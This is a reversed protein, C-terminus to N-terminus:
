AMECRRAPQPCRKSSEREKPTALTATTWRKEAIQPCGAVFAGRLLPPEGLPKEGAGFRPYNKALCRYFGAGVHM